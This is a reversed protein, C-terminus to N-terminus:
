KQLDITQTTSQSTRLKLKVRALESQLLAPAMSRYLQKGIGLDGKQAAVSSFADDFMDRYMQTSFSEPEAFGSTKRMAGLLDKLFLQEIGQTAKRLKGLAPGAQRAAEVGRLAEDFRIM